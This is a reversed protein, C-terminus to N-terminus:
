KHILSLFWLRSQIFSLFAVRLVAFPPFSTLSSFLSNSEDSPPRTSAIYVAPATAHVRSTPALDCRSVARCGRRAARGACLEFRVAPEVFGSCAGWEQHIVRAIGLRGNPALLSLGRKLDSGKNGLNSPCPKNRTTRGGFLKRMCSCPQKSVGLCTPPQRGITKFGAEPVRGPRPWHLFRPTCFGLHALSPPPLSSAQPGRARSAAGHLKAVHSCSCHM